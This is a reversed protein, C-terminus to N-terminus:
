EIPRVENHPILTILQECLSQIQKGRETVHVIKIRSKKEFTILGDKEFEQLIKVTHSYTANTVKSIASVIKNDCIAIYRIWYPINYSM